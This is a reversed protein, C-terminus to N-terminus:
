LGAERAADIANQVVTEANGTLLSHDKKPEAHIAEILIGVHRAARELRYRCIVLKENETIDM